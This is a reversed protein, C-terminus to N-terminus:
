TSVAVYNESGFYFYQDAVERSLLEEPTGSLLTEGDKNRIDLLQEGREKHSLIVALAYVRSAYLRFYPMLYRYVSMTKGDSTRVNWRVKPAEKQVLYGIAGHMNKMLHSLGHFATGFRLGSLFTRKNAQKSLYLARGIMLEVSIIWDHLYSTISDKEVEMLMMVQNCFDNRERAMWEETRGSRLEFENRAQRLIQPTINAGSAKVSVVTGQLASLFQEYLALQGQVMGDVMDKGTAIYM